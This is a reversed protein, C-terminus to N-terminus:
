WTYAWTLPPRVCPLTLSGFIPLVFLAACVTLKAGSPLDTWVYGGLGVM